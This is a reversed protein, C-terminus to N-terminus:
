NLNLSFSKDRIERNRKCMHWKLSMRYEFINPVERYEYYFDPLVDRQIQTLREYSAHKISNILWDYNVRAEYKLHELEKFKEEAQDKALWKMFLIIGITPIIIALATYLASEM